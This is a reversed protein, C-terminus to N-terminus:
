LEKGCHKCVTARQKIIEACHPCERTFNLKHIAAVAENIAKQVPEHSAVINMLPEVARLDGLDGLLQAAKQRVSPWEEEEKLITIVEDVNKAMYADTLRAMNRNRREVSEADKAEQIEDLINGKMADISGAPIATVENSEPHIMCRYGMEQGFHEEMHSWSGQFFKCEDNFCVYLHDTCWGLGDSFNFPPVQWKNMKKGCHPCLYEKKPKSPTKEPAKKERTDAM